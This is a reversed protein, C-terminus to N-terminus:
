QRCTGRQSPTCPGAARALPTPPLAGQGCPLGAPNANLAGKAKARSVLRGGNGGGIFTKWHYCNSTKM